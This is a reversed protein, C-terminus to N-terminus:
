SGDYIRRRGDRQLWATRKEEGVVDQNSSPLFPNIIWACSLADWKPNEKCTKSCNANIKLFFTQHKFYVRSSGFYVQPSGFHPRLSAVCVQLYEFYIQLFGFYTKLDARGRQFYADLKESLLMLKFVKKAKSFVSM